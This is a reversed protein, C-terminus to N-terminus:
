LYIVLMSGIWNAIPTQTVHAYNGWSGSKLVNTDKDEDYPDECLEWVNRRMDYRGLDNLTDIKDQLEKLKLTDVSDKNTEDYAKQARKLDPCNKIAFELDKFNKVIKDVFLRLIVNM